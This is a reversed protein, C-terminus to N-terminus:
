RSSHVLGWHLHTVTRMQIYIHISTMRILDDYDGDVVLRLNRPGSLWMILVVHM